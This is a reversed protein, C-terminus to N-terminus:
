ALPMFLAQHQIAHREFMPQSLPTYWDFPVDKVELSEETTEFELDYIERDTELRTAFDLDRQDLRVPSGLDIVDGTKTVSTGGPNVIGLAAAWATHLM